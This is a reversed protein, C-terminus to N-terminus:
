NDKVVVGYKTRYFGNWNKDRSFGEPITDDGYVCEPNLCDSYVTDGNYVIYYSDTGCFACEGPGHHYTSRMEDEDVYRRSQLEILEARRDPLTERVFQSSLQFGQVYPDSLTM